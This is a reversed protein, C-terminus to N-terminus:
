YNVLCDIDHGVFILDTKSRSSVKLGKGFYGGTESAGASPPHPPAKSTMTLTTLLAAFATPVAM